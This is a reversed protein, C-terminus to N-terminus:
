PRIITVTDAHPDDPPPAPAGAGRARPRAKKTVYVLGSAADIALTNPSGGTELQSIIEYSTGDFVTVTSAVRNAAYVLNAEPHFEVDLAGEGTEVTALLEGSTSDLVTVSGGQNAVFLRGTEADLALNSPREGGAPFREVVEHSTLDIAAVEGAAMNTTWLRNAARDLVLGATGDGVNQLVRSVTNTRGDIVWIRGAEGYSSVYVTNTAEDAIVERLHADPDEDTRMTAVIRGTSLDIASVSGDRTNSSYLTQTEDNIGLGFPAASTADITQVVDLTDGDLVVVSAGPQDRQGAVAVYIRGTSPSAAIEYVGPGVKVTKGVSPRAATATQASLLTATAVLLAIAGVAARTIVRGSNLVLSLTSM